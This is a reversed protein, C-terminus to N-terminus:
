ETEPTVRRHRIAKPQCSPAAEKNDDPLNSASIVNLRVTMLSVDLLSVDLLSDDLLTTM